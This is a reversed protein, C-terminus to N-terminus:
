PAVRKSYRTLPARAPQGLPAMRWTLLRRDRAPPGREAIAVAADTARSINVMDSVTGGVVRFMGSFTEDPIVEVV